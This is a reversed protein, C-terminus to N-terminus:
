DSEDKESRAYEDDDEISGDTVDEDALKARKGDQRQAVGFPNLLAFERSTEDVLFAPNEFLANSLEDDSKSTSHQREDVDLSGVKM